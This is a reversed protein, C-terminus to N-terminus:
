GFDVEKKAEKERARRRGAGSGCGEKQTSGM